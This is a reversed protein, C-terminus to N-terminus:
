EPEGPLKFGPPPPALFPRLERAAAALADRERRDRPHRFVRSLSLSPSDVYLHDFYLDCNGEAYLRFEYASVGDSEFAVPVWSYGGAAAFDSVRVTRAAVVESEGPTDHRLVVLTAAPEFPNAPPGMALRANVCVIGAPWYREGRVVIGLLGHAAPCYVARGDRARPDYIRVGLDNHLESDEVVRFLTDFVDAAAYRPAAGRRLLVYHGDAYVCGYRHDRLLGILTYRRWSRDWDWPAPMMWNEARGGAELDDVSVLVEYPFLANLRQFQHPFLYVRWRETFHPLLFMSAGLSQDRSVLSKVNEFGAAAAPPQYLSPNYERGLPGFAYSTAVGALILYGAFARRGWALLVPRAAGRRELWGWARLAFYFLFPIFPMTYQFNIDYHTPVRSFLAYTVPTAFTVWGGVAAASLFGWPAAMQLLYAVRGLDRVRGFWEGPYEFVYRLLGFPSNAVGFTNLIPNSAGGSMNMLQPYVLYTASLFHVLAFVAVALGLRRRGGFFALYIGAAAVYLKLEELVLLTLFFFLLAGRARGSALFWFAWLVLAPAMIREHYDYLSLSQFPVLLLLSLGFALALYRSATFRRALLYAPISASGLIAAQLILLTRPSPFLRSLPAIMESLLAVHNLHGKALIVTQYLFGGRSGAWFVQHQIGFDVAAATFADYKLNALYAFLVTFAAAAVGLFLPARAASRDPAGAPRLRPWLWAAAAAVAAAGAVIALQALIVKAPSDM